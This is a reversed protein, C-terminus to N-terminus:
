AVLRIVREKSPAGPVQPTAQHEEQPSGKRDAAMTDTQSGAQSDGQEAGYRRWRNRGSQKVAYLAQDARSVIDAVEDGEGPVLTVFGISATMRITEGAAAPMVRVVSAEIQARIREALTEAGSGMTQPAIVIFEEGGFRGLTDTSRTCRRLVQGVVRIAEDGTPHGHNDNIRKFHDVDVLMVTLPTGYRKAYGIAQDLQRSVFNRNNLGSLEDLTALRMIEADARDKVMFIMGITCILICIASLMFTAAQVTGNDLLHKAQIFGGAIGIARYTVMATMMALGFALLNQGRGPVENRRRWLLVLIWAALPVAFSAHAVVRIAFHDTLFAFVAASVAVVLIAGRVPLRRGQFQLVALLMLCLMAVQLTNGLAASLLDPIRDRLALLSFSLTNCWLALSWLRLGERSRHPSSEGSALALTASIAVNMVFMTLTDLTM